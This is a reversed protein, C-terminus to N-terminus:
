LINLVLCQSELVVMDVLNLVLQDRLLVVPVVLVVVVVLNILM